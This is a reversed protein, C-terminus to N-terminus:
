KRIRMPVPSSLRVERTQTARNVVRRYWSPEQASGGNEMLLKALAIVDENKMRICGKSAARGISGPENTGHIFYDPEAFFIKVRGMPNKPDGPPTPKKDKAWPANPPVWGPNWIIRRVTFNGTPTPHGAEGVAIPYSAIVKDGKRVRLVRDSVSVDMRVAAAEVTSEATPLAVGGAAASFDSASASAPAGAAVLSLVVAFWINKLMPERKREPEEGSRGRGNQFTPEVRYFM